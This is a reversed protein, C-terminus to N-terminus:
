GADVLSKSFVPAWPNACDTSLLHGDETYRVEAKQSSESSTASRLILLKRLM